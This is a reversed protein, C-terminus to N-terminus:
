GVFEEFDILGNFDKDFLEYMPGLEADKADPVLSQIIASFQPFNLAVVKVRLFM